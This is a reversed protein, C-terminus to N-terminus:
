CIQLHAIESQSSFYLTCPLDKVTVIFGEHPKNINIFYYFNGGFTTILPDFGFLIFYPQTTM